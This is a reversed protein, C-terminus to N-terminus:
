WTALPPRHVVATLFRQRQELSEIEAELRRQEAVRLEYRSVSAEAGQESHRLYWEVTAVTVLAAVGLAAVAYNGVRNIIRNRREHRISAPVLSETSAAPLNAVRVAPYSADNWEPAAQVSAEAILRAAVDDLLDEGGVLVQRAVIGLNQRAYLLSRQIEEVLRSRGTGAGPTLHRLLVEPGKPNRVLMTTGNPTHNVLCVVDDPGNQEEAWQLMLSAVPLILRPTLDVARMDQLYQRLKQQPWLHVLYHESGQLATGEEDAPRVARARHSGLYRHCWVMRGGDMRREVERGILQLRLKPKVPPVSLHVHEMDVDAVVLSVSDGEYGTEELARELYFRFAGEHWGHSRDGAGPTWSAVVQRGDHVIANFNGYLFSVALHAAM